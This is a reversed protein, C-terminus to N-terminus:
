LYLLEVMENSTVHLALEVEIVLGVPSIGDIHCRISRWISSASMHLHHGIGDIHFRASRWTCRPQKCQEVWSAAELYKMRAVEAVFALVDSNLERMIV